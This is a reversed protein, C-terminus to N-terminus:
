LIYRIHKAMIKYELFSLETKNQIGTFLLNIILSPQFTQKKMIKVVFVSMYTTDIPIVPLLPVLSAPKPALGPLKLPAWLHQNATTPIRWHLLNLVQWRHHPLNIHHVKEKKKYSNNTPKTLKKKNEKGIQSQGFPFSYASRTGLNSHM